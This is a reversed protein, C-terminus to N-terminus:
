RYSTNKKRNKRNSSKMSSWKQSEQLSRGCGLCWGKPGSLKCIDVCPSQYKKLIKDIQKARSTAQKAKSAKARFRDVFAQMHAREATQKKAAAAQEALKARRVGDFTDYNGKNVPVIMEPHAGLEKIDVGACFGRGEASIVIVHVDSRLGLANIETAIAAWEGSDFANVPPKDFIIHGINEAVQSTFAAM